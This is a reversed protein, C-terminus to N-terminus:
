CCYSASLSWVYRGAALGLFALVLGLMNTGGVYLLALGVDGQRLLNISDLTYTSFTTFAGLVGTVLFPAFVAPLGGREALAWLFGILLCGGLNAIFTGWPFAAGLVSLALSDVSYRLVAGLAGGLGVLVLKFM